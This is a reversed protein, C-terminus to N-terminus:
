VRGSAMCFWVQDMADAHLAIMIPTGGALRYDTRAFYNVQRVLGGHDKRVTAALPDHREQKM